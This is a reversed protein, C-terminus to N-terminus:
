LYGQQCTSISPSLPPIQCFVQELNVLVITWSNNVVALLLQLFERSKKKNRTYTDNPTLVVPGSNPFNSFNRSNADPEARGPALEERGSFGDGARPFARLGTPASGLWESSATVM